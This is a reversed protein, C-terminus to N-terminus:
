GAPPSAPIPQTPGDPLPPGPDIEPAKGDLTEQVWRHFQGDRLYRDFDKGPCSTQGSAADKHGRVRSQDIRYRERLWATLKVCSAVQRPDPRQSGFDGMMEVGINGKLPYKTNSEPEYDLPRGEFIRGDPAILFHYPLDPWGKERQGWSQMNRVFVEPEVKATWTVGAHHITVFEPSHKRSDPIEQPKSGWESASVIEPRPVAPADRGPADAAPIQWALVAAVISLGMM